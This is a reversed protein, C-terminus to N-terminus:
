IAGALVDVMMANCRKFLRYGCLTFIFWDTEPTHLGALEALYVMDIISPIQVATVVPDYVPDHNFAIYGATCVSSYKLWLEAHNSKESLTYLCDESTIVPRISSCKGMHCKVYEALITNPLMAVRGGHMQSDSFLLLLFSQTKRRWYTFRDDVSCEIHILEIHAWHTFVNWCTVEAHWGLNFKWIESSCPRTYTDGQMLGCYIDNCSVNCRMVNCIRDNCWWIKDCWMITDSEM